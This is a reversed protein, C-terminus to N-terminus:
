VEREKSKASGGSHMGSSVSGIKTDFLHDNWQRSGNVARRSQHARIHDVFVSFGIPKENRGVSLADVLIKRAQYFSCQCVNVGHSELIFLDLDNSTEIHAVALLHM